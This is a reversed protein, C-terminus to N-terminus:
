SSHRSTTKEASRRGFDAKNRMRGRELYHGLRKEGGWFPESEGDV